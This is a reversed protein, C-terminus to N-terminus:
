VTRLPFLCRSGGGVVRFDRLSSLLPSYQTKIKICGEWKLISSVVAKKLSIVIERWPMAWLRLFDVFHTPARWQWEASAFRTFFVAITLM